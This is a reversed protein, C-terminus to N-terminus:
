AEVTALGSHVVSGVSAEAIVGSTRGVTSPAVVGLGVLAEATAIVTAAEMAGAVAEVAAVRAATAEVATAAAIAEMAATTASATGVASMALEDADFVLFPQPDRRLRKEKAKMQQRFAASKAKAESGAARM